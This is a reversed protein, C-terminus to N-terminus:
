AAAERLAELLPGTAEDLQRPGCQETVLTYGFRTV